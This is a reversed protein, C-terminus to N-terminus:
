FRRPPRPVGQDVKKHWIAWGVVALGTYIGVLVLYGWWHHGIGSRMVVFTPAVFNFVFYWIPVARPAAYFQRFHALGRSAPRLSVFM